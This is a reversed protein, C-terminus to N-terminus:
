SKEGTVNNENKGKEDDFRGLLIISISPSMSAAIFTSKGAAALELV